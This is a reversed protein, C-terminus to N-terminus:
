LLWTNKAFDVPKDNEQQIPRGPQSAPITDRDAELDENETKLTNIEKTLKENLEALHLAATKAQEFETKLYELEELEKQLKKVSKKQQQLESQLDTIQQQLHREKKHSEKLDNKLDAFTEEKEQAAKEAEELAARLEAVIAELEAKTPPKTRSKSQENMQSKEVATIEQVNEGELEPSKEVEERLLDTLSKKAM